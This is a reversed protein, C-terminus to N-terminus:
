YGGLVRGEHTIHLMHVLQNQGFSKGSYGATVDTVKALTLSDFTGPTMQQSTLTIDYNTGNNFVGAVLWDELTSRLTERQEAQVSADAGPFSQPHIYAFINTYFTYWYGPGSQKIEVRTSRGDQRGGGLFTVWFPNTAADPLSDFDGLYFQGSAATIASYPTGLATLQATLDSLGAIALAKLRRRIALSM